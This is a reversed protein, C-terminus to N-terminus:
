FGVANPRSPRASGEMPREPLEWPDLPQEIFADFGGRSV